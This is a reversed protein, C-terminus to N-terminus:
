ASEACGPPAGPGHTLPDDPPLPETPMQGPALDWIVETDTIYPLYGKAHVIHHHRSCLLTGNALESRGNVWWPIAHHAHCWPAPRDCGPFTCSRDRHIIAARTAPTFTRNARGVDLPQSETGLVVPTLQASCAMTRCTGADIVHGLDTIGYGANFLNGMLVSLPITVTCKASARGADSTTTRGAADILEMLADARRKGPSRLDPGSAGADGEGKRPAALAEVASAFTAADGPSLDGEIRTMGGPLEHWSLTEAQRAKTEDKPAEDDGFEAVIRKTLDRLDKSTGQQAITLYYGLIENRSADPLVHKIRHHERLAVVLARVTIDGAALAGRLPTNKPDNIATAAAVIRSAQGPELRPAKDTIWQRPSGADSQDIIGRDIADALAFVQAREAREGIELLDTFLEGLPGSALQTTSAGARTVSTKLEAVRAAAAPGAGPVLRDATGTASTPTSGGALIGADPSQEYKSLDVPPVDQDLRGWAAHRLSEQLEEKSCLPWAEESAASHQTNGADCSTKSSDGDSAAPSSGASSSESEADGARSPRPTDGSKPFFAEGRHAEDGPTFAM